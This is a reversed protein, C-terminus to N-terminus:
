TMNCRLLSLSSQFAYGGSGCGPQDERNEWLDQVWVHVQSSDLMKDPLASSVQRKVIPLFRRSASVENLAYLSLKKM